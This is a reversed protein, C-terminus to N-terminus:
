KTAGCIIFETTEGAVQCCNRASCQCHATQLSSGKGSALNLAYAPRKGDAASNGKRFHILQDMLGSSIIALFLLRKQRRTCRAAPERISDGPDLAAVTQFSLPSWVM